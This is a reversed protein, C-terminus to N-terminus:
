NRPVSGFLDRLGGASALKNINEDTISTKQYFQAKQEKPSTATVAEVGVKTLLLEKPRFSHGLSAPRTEM